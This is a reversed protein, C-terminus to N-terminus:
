ALNELPEYSQRVEPKPPTPVSDVGRPGINARKLIMQEDEGSEIRRVLEEPIL